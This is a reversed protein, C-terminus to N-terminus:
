DRTLQARPMPVLRGRLDSVDGDEQYEADTNVQWLDFEGGDLNRAALMGTLMSHDQNNYKHMGNRGVVQFNEFRSLAKRIIDVKTGYDPDYVPYAKEVRVVCGDIIEEPSALGLEQLERKALDMMESDRSTWLPDDVTCFYELELCTVHKDPVMDPSWNNYNEIRAVRVSPDHVYIWQDPFLDRRNVMLVVIIFDRYRLSRAAEQVEDDLPPHMNLVCDRLPMSGVFSDGQWEEVMGACVTQLKVVRDGDRCICNVTRGMKIHGGQRVIESCAKEWMQGAGLRPYDFEDVLTKITRFRKRRSSIASYVAEKLSLGKIRQAAWDANIESCSMGWVKETYTKFFIRFLRDGFRNSVWDEFSQEPHFPLVQRWMYSLLCATSEVVGLGNLADFAEIPYRFLRGQYYIRSLRKVKLFDGPLRERWWRTIEANKSFFRHPGVDFRFGRYCMTKALGGVHHEDRELVVVERGETVLEWAAALGAPGAGIVITRPHAM